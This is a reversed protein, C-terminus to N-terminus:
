EDTKRLTQTNLPHGLVVGEELTAWLHWFTLSEQLLKEWLSVECGNTEFIIDVFNM